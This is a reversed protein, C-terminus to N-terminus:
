ARAGPEHAGDIRAAEADTIHEDRRAKAQVKKWADPDPAGLLARLRGEDYAKVIEEPTMSKLQDAGVQGSM